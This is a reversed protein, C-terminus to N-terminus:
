TSVEIPESTVRSVRTSAAVPLSTSAIAVSGRQSTPCSTRFGTVWWSSATLKSYVRRSHFVRSGATRASKAASALACGPSKEIM